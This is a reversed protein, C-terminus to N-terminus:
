EIVPYFCFYLEGIGGFEPICAKANRLNEFRAFRSDDRVIVVVSSYKEKDTEQFM